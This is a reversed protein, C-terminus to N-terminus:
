DFLCPEKILSKHTQNNETTILFYPESALNTTNIPQHFNLVNVVGAKGYGWRDNPVTNTFNDQEARHILTNIIQNLDFQQTEFYLHVLANPAIEDMTKIALPLHTKRDGQAYGVLAIMFVLAINLVLRM